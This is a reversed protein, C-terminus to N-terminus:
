SGLKYNRLFLVVTSWYPRTWFLIPLCRRQRWIALKKCTKESCVGGNQQVITKSMNNRRRRLWARISPDQASMAYIQRRMSTESPTKAADQRRPTGRMLSEIGM